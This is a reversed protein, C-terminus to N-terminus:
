EKRVKAMYMRKDTNLRLLYLGPPLREAEVRIEKKEALIAESYLIRGQLDLLEVKKMRENGENSVSLAHRFPNPYVKIGSQELDQSGTLIISYATDCPFKDPSIDLRTYQKLNNYFLPNKYLGITSDEYCRMPGLLAVLTPPTFFGSVNGIDQIFKGFLVGRIFQVKKIKGNVLETSTSDVTQIFEEKGLTIKYTQGAVLSFDMWINFQDLTPNYKYIKEEEKYYYGIEIYRGVVIVKACSKAKIVTDKLSSVIRPLTTVILNPGFYRGDNDNYYIKAGVPPWPTQASLELIGKFLLIVIATKKM